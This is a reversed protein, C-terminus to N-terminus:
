VEWTARVFRVTPPVWPKEAKVGRAESAWRRSPCAAMWFNAGDELLVNSHAESAVSASVVAQLPKM